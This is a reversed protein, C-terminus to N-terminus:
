NNKELFTKVANRADLNSSTGHFRGELDVQEVSRGNAVDICRGQTHERHRWPDNTYSVALVPSNMPTRLGHRENNIKHTCTWGSIIYGKIGDISSRATGQAGESHGMLYIKSKDVWPLKILEGYAHEAELSRLKFVDGKYLGSTRSNPDCNQTRWTAFSNPMVVVFGLENIFKAWVIDHENIGTCGHLYIVVPYQKDSVVNYPNTPLFKNPIFSLAKTFTREIDQAYSPCVIGFLIFLQCIFKKM